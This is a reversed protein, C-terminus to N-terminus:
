IQVIYHNHKRNDHLVVSFTHVKLLRERLYMEDSERATQVIAPMIKFFHPYYREFTGTHQKGRQRLTMIINLAKCFLQCFTEFFILVISFNFYFHIFRVRRFIVLLSVTEVSCIETLYGKVLNSPM